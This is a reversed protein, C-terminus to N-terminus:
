SNPHFLRYTAKSWWRGISRLTGGITTPGASGAGEVYVSKSPTTGSPAAANQKPAACGAILVCLVVAFASKIPNTM